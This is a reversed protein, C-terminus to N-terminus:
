FEPSESDHSRNLEQDPVQSGALQVAVALVLILLYFLTELIVSYSKKESTNSCVEFNM